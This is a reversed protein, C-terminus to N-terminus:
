MKKGGALRGVRYARRRNAALYWLLFIAVPLM